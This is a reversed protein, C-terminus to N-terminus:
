VLMLRPTSAPLGPSYIPPVTREKRAASIGVARSFEKTQEVISLISPGYPLLNDYHLLIMEKIIIIIIIIAMKIHNEKLTSATM